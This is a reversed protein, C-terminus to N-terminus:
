WPFAVGAFLAPRSRVEFGVHLIGGGKFGKFLKVVVKQADEQGFQYATGVDISLGHPLPVSLAFEFSHNAFDRYYYRLNGLLFLADGDRLGLSLFAYPDTRFPRVGYSLDGDAALRKWWSREVAGYSVSLPEVAEEEVSGLSNRLFGALLGQRDKLWLLVPLDVTAERASYVASKLLTYRATTTTRETFTNFDREEARIRMNIVKFPHFRDAFLENADQDFALTFREWVGPNPKSPSELVSTLPQQEVQTGQETARVELAAVVGLFLFM